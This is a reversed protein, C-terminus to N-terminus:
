QTTERSTPGHEPESYHTYDKNKDFDSDIFDSDIIVEEDLDTKLGLISNLAPDDLGLDLDIESDDEIIRLQKKKLIESVSSDIIPPLSDPNLSFSSARDLLISDVEDVFIPNLVFPPNLIEREGPGGAQALKRQAAEKERKEDELQQRMYDLDRRHQEELNRKLDEARKREAEIRAQSAAELQKKQEEAKARDAKEIYMRHLDVDLDIGFRNLNYIAEMGLDPCYNDKKLNELIGAAKKIVAENKERLNSLYTLVQEIANKLEEGLSQFDWEKLLKQLQLEENLAKEEAEVSEKFAKEQSAIEEVSVSSKQKEIEEKFSKEKQAINQKFELKRLDIYNQIAALIKQEVNLAFICQELQLSVFETQAATLVINTQPCKNGRQRLITEITEKNYILRQQEPKEHKALRGPNEAFEQMITCTYYNVGRVIEKANLNANLLVKAKLEKLQEATIM